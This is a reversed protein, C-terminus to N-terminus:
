GIEGGLFERDLGWEGAETLTNKWGGVVGVERGEIGRCQPM